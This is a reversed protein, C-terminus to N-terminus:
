MQGVGGGGSRKRSFPNPNGDTKGGSLKKTSTKLIARGSNGGGGTTAKKGGGSTKAKDAGKGEKGQNQCFNKTKPPPPMKPADKDKGKKRTIVGITGRKKGM